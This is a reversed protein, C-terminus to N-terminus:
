VDEVDKELRKILNYCVRSLIVGSIFACFHTVLVLIM